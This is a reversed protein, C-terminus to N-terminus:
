KQLKFLSVEMNRLYIFSSETSGQRIYGLGTPYKTKKDVGIDKGGVNLTWGEEKNNGPFKNVIEEIEKEIKNLNKAWNDENLHELLIKGDIKTELLALLMQESDASSISERDFNGKKKFWEKFEESEALVGSAYVFLIMVLLIIITAPIWTMTTGAAARKNKYM